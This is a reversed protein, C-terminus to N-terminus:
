KRRRKTAAKEAALADVQAQLELITAAVDSDCEEEFIHPGIPFFLGGAAGVEGDGRLEPSLPCTEDGDVLQGLVM